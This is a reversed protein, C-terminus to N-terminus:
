MLSNVCPNPSQALAPKRVFRNYKAGLSSLITGGLEALLEGLAAAKLPRAPNALPSTYGGKRLLDM